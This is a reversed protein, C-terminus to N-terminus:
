MPQVDGHVNTALTFPKKVFVPQFIVFGHTLRCKMKTTEPKHIIYELCDTKTFTM